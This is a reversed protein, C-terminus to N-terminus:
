RASKQTYSIGAGIAVLFIGILIGLVESTLFDKHRIEYLFKGGFLFVVAGAWKIFQSFANVIRYTLAPQAKLMTLNKDRM